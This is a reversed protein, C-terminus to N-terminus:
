RGGWAKEILDDRMERTAGGEDPVLKFHRVQKVIEGNAVTPNGDGDQLGMTLRVRPVNQADITIVISETLRPLQEPLNTIVARLAHYLAINDMPKM